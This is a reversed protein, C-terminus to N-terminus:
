KGLATIVFQVIPNALFMIIIWVIVYAIMTKSQKAKEEDWVWTLLNFWAYIILIVALFYVFWLIYQTVKSIYTAASDDKKNIDNIWKVVDIWKKLWYEDAKYPIETTTNNFLSNWAYTNASLFTVWSITILLFTLLSIIYKM